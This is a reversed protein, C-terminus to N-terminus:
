GGQEETEGSLRDVGPGGSVVDDGSGGSLTTTATTATSPTPETAARWGTAGPTASSRTTAGAATSGTTAASAASSTPAAAHRAAPRPRAHRHDHLRAADRRVGRRRDGAAARARDAADRVRAPARRRRARQRARGDGHGPRALPLLGVRPRHRRQRQRPLGVQRVPRPFDRELRRLNALADRPAYRLALFAAHPTVVGNTYASPPPDPKAPRTRAARSATTSWRRTRTRPTATRTRARHRRRRLGRLRGGAHQVALLGLLRLRGRGARPAIQARVWLPHNVGWSGPAWREEPVFLTPMLAEFMSGGWSPTVRTGAYPLAGEFVTEGLYQRTPGLPRTETWSWDCSDPFARNTGYYQREPIQGQEIGVYTAIRSESVTTDYCCAAEGTSPVYHFLIRNVDPRYYFGFDMSDFCRRRARACSPCAARWWRAPRDRALRQRGLLPDAHRRGGGRHPRRSERRHPHRVLQLVPRRQRAGDDRADRDDACGRSRRATASSGWGSPRWRAGCTRASTPRPPRRAARATAQERLRRAARDARRDDRGDVGVHGARLARAPGGEGAGAGGGAARRADGAWRDAEGEGSEAYGAFAQLMVGLRAPPRAFRRLSPTTRRSSM